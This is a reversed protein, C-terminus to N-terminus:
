ARAMARREASTPRRTVTIWIGDPDRVSAMWGETTAPRWRTSRAGYRLLRKWTRELTARPAAGLTFDLHDVGDGPAYRSYFLSGRPYWNLEVVRGSAPDRLVVWQGGGWSRTDGRRAVKLGLAGTYFRVSRALNTVRLGVHEFRM